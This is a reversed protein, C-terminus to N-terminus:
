RTRSAPIQRTSSCCDGEAYKALALIWASSRGMDGVVTRPRPPIRAFLGSRYANANLYVCFRLEAAWTVSHRV